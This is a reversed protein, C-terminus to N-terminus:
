DLEWCSNTILPLLQMEERNALIVVDPLVKFPAMGKILSIHQFFDSFSSTTPLARCYVSTGKNAGMGNKKLFETLAIKYKGKLRVRVCKGEQYFINV